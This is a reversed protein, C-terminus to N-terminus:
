EVDGIRRQLGVWADLLRTQRKWAFPFTMTFREKGLGDKAWPVDDITVSEIFDTQPHRSLFDELDAVPKIPLCAGSVLAVHRADPDLSLLQETATRTADVLSWTGWDCKQREAFHISHSDAVQSVLAHFAHGARERATHGHMDFGVSM